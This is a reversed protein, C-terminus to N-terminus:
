GDFFGRFFGVDINVKEKKDKKVNTENITLNKNTKKAYLNETLEECNSCFQHLIGTNKNGITKIIEGDETRFVTIREININIIKKSDCFPCVLVELSSSNTRAKGKTTNESSM